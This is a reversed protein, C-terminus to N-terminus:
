TNFIDEKNNFMNNQEILNLLFDSKIKINKSKIIKEIIKSDYQNIINLEEELIQEISKNNDFDYKDLIKFNTENKDKINELIYKYKLNFFKKFSFKICDIFIFIPIISFVLYTASFQSINFNNHIIFDINKFIFFSVFLIYLIYFFYKITKIGKDYNNKLNNRKSIFFQFGKRKEKIEYM